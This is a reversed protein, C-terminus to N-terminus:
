EGRTPDFIVRVAVIVGLLPGVPVTVKKSPEVLRPELETLALVAVHGMTAM